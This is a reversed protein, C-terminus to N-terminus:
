LEIEVEQAARVIGEYRDTTNSPIVLVYEGISGNSYATGPTEIVLAGKKFVINVKDGSRVATQKILHERKLLTGQALNQKVTVSGFETGPVIYEGSDKGLEVRGVVFDASSVVTGAAIDRIACLAPLFHHVKVMLYAEKKNHDERASYALHLEGTIRNLRKQSKVIRFSFDGSEPLQVREDFEIEVRENAPSLYENLFSLLSVYFDCQKSLVFRLPVYVSRSGGILIFSDIGSSAISARIDSLPILAPLDALPSLPRNLVESKAFSQSPVTVLAEARLIKSELIVPRVYFDSASLSVTGISLFLCLRAVRQLKSMCHKKLVVHEKLM